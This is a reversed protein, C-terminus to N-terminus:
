KSYTCPNAVTISGNFLVKANTTVAGVKGAWAFNEGVCLGAAVLLLRLSNILKRKM